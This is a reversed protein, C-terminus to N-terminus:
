AKDSRNKSTLTLGHFFNTDETNYAMLDQLVLKPQPNYAVM